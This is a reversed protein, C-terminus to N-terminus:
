TRDSGAKTIRNLGEVIELGSSVICRVTVIEATHSVSPITLNVMFLHFLNVNRDKVCGCILHVASKFAAKKDGIRCETILDITKM